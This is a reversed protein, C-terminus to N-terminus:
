PETTVIPVGHGNGLAVPPNPRLQRQVQHSGADAGPLRHHGHQPVNEIDEGGPPGRALRHPRRPRQSSETRLGNVVLGTIQRFATQVVQWAVKPFVGITFGVVLVLFSRFTLVRYAPVVMPAGISVPILPTVAFIV